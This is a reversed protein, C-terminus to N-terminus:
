SCVYEINSPKGRFPRLSLSFLSLFFCLSFPPKLRSVCVRVCVKLRCVLFINLFLFFSLCFFPPCIVCMCVRDTWFRIRFSHSYFQDATPQNPDRAGTGGEGRRGGGRPPAGSKSTSDYVRHRLELGLLLACAGRASAKSTGANGGPDM